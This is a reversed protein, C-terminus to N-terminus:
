RQIVGCRSGEIFAGPVPTNINRAWLKGALVDEIGAVSLEYGLVDHAEARSIFEQYRM